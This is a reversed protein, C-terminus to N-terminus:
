GRQRRVPPSVNDSDFSKETSRPSARVAMAMLIPYGNKRPFYYPTYIYISLVNCGLQYPISNINCQHIYIYLYIHRTYGVM